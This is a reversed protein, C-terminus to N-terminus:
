RADELLEIIANAMTPSIVLYTADGLTVSVVDKFDLANPKAALRSSLYDIVESKDIM